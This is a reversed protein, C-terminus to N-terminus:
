LVAADPLRGGLQGDPPTAPSAASRTPQPLPTIPEPSSTIVTLMTGAILTVVMGHKTLPAILRQVRRRRREARLERHYAHIDRDLERADDPIEIDVPPLGSEDREPEGGM